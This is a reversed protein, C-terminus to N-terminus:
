LEADITIKGIGTGTAKGLFILVTNSHDTGVSCGIQASNIEGTSVDMSLSSVSDYTVGPKHAIDHM